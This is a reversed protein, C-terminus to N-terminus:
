PKIYVTLTTAGNTTFGYYSDSGVTNEMTRGDPPGEVWSDGDQAWSGGTLNMNSTYHAYEAGPQSDVWGAGLGIADFLIKSSTPPVYLIFRSYGSVNFSNGSQSTGILQHGTKSLAYDGAQAGYIEYYGSGVVPQRSALGVSVSVDTPDNLETAVMYLSLGSGDTVISLTHYIASAGTVPANNLTARGNVVDLSFSENGFNLTITDADVKSITFTGSSADDFGDTTNRLNLDSYFNGSWSGVFNDATLSGPNRLWNSVNFSIDTPDNSEQGIFTFVMNNGDSLILFELLNWNGMDYPPTSLRAVNNSRELPVSFSGDTATLQISLNTSDVRTVELTMTGSQNLTVGDRINNDYQTVFSYTGAFSLFPPIITNEGGSSVGSVNLPNNTPVAVGSTTDVFGLDITVASAISFVNTTGQYLPYVKENSTGENEILYLKYKGGVPVTLTFTKPSGTATNRNVENGNEDVAVVTTGTVTGTITANTAGGGNGGGGSDSGGGGGGSGCATLFIAFLISLIRGGFHRLNSKMVGEGRERM